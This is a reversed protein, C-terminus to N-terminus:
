KSGQQMQLSASREIWEGDADQVIERLVVEAESVRLIKGYNQGLYEGSKVQHLLGNVRLLAIPEKGQLLTGVFAMSDLPLSELPEKRRSMEPKVLVSTDVAAKGEKRLVATLKMSNFPDLVLAQQYAQPVFKKPTAIPTLRPKMSKRQETMWNNIGEDESVGCGSIMMGFPVIWILKFVRHKSLFKKM